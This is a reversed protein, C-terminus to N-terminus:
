LKRIPVPSPTSAPQYRPEAISARSGAVVNRDDMGYKQSPRTAIASNVPISLKKGEDPPYSGPTIGLQSAPNMPLAIRCLRSGASVMKMEDILPQIRPIRLM